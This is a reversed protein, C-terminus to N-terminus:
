QYSVKAGGSTVTQFGISSSLVDIDDPSHGASWAAKNRVTSTKTMLPNGKTRMKQLTLAFKEDEGLDSSDTDSSSSQEM